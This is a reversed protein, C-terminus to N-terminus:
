SLYEEVLGKLIRLQAPTLDEQQNKKYLFVMYFKDNPKDWYYIVRLGGRKGHGATRWRLKRLGGSRPIVDGAEPRFILMQQLEAYSEDSLLEVFLKTFIPTEIFSM